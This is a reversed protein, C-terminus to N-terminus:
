GDSASSDPQRAIERPHGALHLLEIIVACEGGIMDINKRLSEPEMEVVGGVMFYSMGLAILMRARGNPELTLLDDPDGTPSFKKMVFEAIERADAEADVMTGKSSAM